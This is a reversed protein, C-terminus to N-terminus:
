QQYWSNPQILVARQGQHILHQRGVRATEARRYSHLPCSGVSSRCATRGRSAPTWRSSCAAAGAATRLPACFVASLYRSANVRSVAHLTGPPRFRDSPPALPQFRYFIQLQPEVFGIWSSHHAGSSLHRLPRVPRIRFGNCRRPYRPNLDRDRRWMYSLGTASLM